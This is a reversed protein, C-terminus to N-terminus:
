RTRRKLLIGDVLAAFKSDMEVRGSLQISETAKGHVQDWLRTIPITDGEDAFNLLTKRVGEEILNRPPYKDLDARPITSYKGYAEIIQEKSGQRIAKIEPPLKPRGTSNGSQGKKFATKPPKRKDTKQRNASKM